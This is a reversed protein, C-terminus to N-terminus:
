QAVSSIGRKGLHTKWLAALAKSTSIINVLSM